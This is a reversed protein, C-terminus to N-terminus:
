QVHAALIYGADNELGTSKEMTTMHLLARPNLNYGTNTQVEMLLSYHAYFAIQDRVNPGEKVRLKIM